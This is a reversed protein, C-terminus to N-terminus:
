WYFLGLQETLATSVLNYTIVAGWFTRSTLLRSSVADATFRLEM